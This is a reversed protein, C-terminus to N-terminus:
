YQATDYLSMVFALTIGISIPVNMNTQWNRLASWASAFFVQGSYLLTPFAIAASVWHFIQQMASDAGSWVAISFMMINGAAFGAVALARILYQLHPDSSEQDLEGLHGQHGVKSM